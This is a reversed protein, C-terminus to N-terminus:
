LPTHRCEDKLRFTALNHTAEDENTVSTTYDRKVKHLTLTYCYPTYREEFITKSTVIVVTSPSLRNLSKRIDTLVAPFPNQAFIVSRSDAYKKIADGASLAEITKFTLPPPSLDTSIIEAGRAELLSAQYGSGAGLELVPENILEPAYGLIEDTTKLSPWQYYFGLLFELASALSAYRAARVSTCRVDQNNQTDSLQNYPIGEFQGATFYHNKTISKLSVPEKLPIKKAISYLQHAIHIREESQIGLTELIDQEEALLQLLAYIYNQADEWRGNKSDTHYKFFQRRIFYKAEEVRTRNEWLDIHAQIIQSVNEVREFSLTALIDNWYDAASAAKYPLTYEICAGQDNTHACTKYSLIGTEALLTTSFLTALAAFLGSMVPLSLYRLTNTITNM